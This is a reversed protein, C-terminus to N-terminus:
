IINIIKYRCKYIPLSLSTGPPNYILSVRGTSFWVRFIWPWATFGNIWSPIANSHLSSSSSKVTRSHGHSVCTYNIWIVRTSECLFQNSEFEQCAKSQLRFILCNFFFIWSFIYKVRFICISNSIHELWGTQKWMPLIKPVLKLPSATFSLIYWATTVWM